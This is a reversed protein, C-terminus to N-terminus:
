AGDVHAGTPGVRRDSVRDQTRRFRWGAQLTVTSGPLTDHLSLVLPHQHGACGGSYAPFGGRQERAAARGDDDGPAVGFSSRLGDRRDLGLAPAGLEDDGVQVVDCRYTAQGFLGTLDVHQHVVRGRVMVGRHQLLVDVKLVWSTDRKTVASCPPSGCYEILPAREWPLRNQQPPCDSYPRARCPSTGPARFKGSAAFRDEDCGWRFQMNLFDVEDKFLEVVSKVAVAEEMVPVGSM